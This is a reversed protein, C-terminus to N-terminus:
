RTIRDEWIGHRIVGTVAGGGRRSSDLRQEYDYAGDFRYVTGVTSEVM